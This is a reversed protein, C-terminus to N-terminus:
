GTENLNMEKRRLIEIAGWRPAPIRSYLLVKFKMQDKSDIVNQVTWIGKKDVGKKM